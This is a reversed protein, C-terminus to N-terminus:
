NHQYMMEAMVVMMEVYHQQWSLRLSLRDDNKNNQAVPPLEPVGLSLSPVCSEM